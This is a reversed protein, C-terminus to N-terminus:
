LKHGSTKHTKQVKSKKKENGGGYLKGHWRFQGNVINITHETFDGNQSVDVIMFAHVWKNPRKKMYDPSKDCLCGISHAKHVDKVNRAIIQTYEQVDHTHAYAVSSCFALVTKKAHFENTYYGHILNLKGLQYVENLPIIKWGRKRLRLNEDVGVYGSLQPFKEEVYNVWDEHNGTFFVKVCGRSVAKELPTLIEKDFNEYDEKMRQGELTKKKDALWHSVPQFDMQDGLLVLYDIKKGYERLWEFIANICDRNHFPHHIDPLVLAWKTKNM